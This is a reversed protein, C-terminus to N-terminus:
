MLLPHNYRHHLHIIHVLWGLCFLSDTEFWGYTNATCTSINGNVKAKNDYFKKVAKKQNSSFNQTSYILQLFRPSCGNLVEISNGYFIVLTRKLLSVCPFPCISSFKWHKFFRKGLKSYSISNVAYALGRRNVHM